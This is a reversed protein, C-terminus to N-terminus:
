KKKEKNACPNQSGKLVRECYVGFEIPKVELVNCVSVYVDYTLLKMIVNSVKM